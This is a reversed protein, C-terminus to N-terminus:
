QTRGCQSKYRLEGDNWDMEFNEIFAGYNARTIFEGMAVRQDPPVSEPYFSYFLFQPPSQRIKVYATWQGQKGQYGTQLTEEDVVEYPWGDAEFFTIAVQVLPNRFLGMPPSLTALNTLWQEIAASLQFPQQRAADVGRHTLPQFFQAADRL